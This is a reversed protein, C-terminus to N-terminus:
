GLRSSLRSRVCRPVRKGLWEDRANEKPRQADDAGGEVADERHAELEADDRVKKEAFQRANKLQWAREIKNSSM